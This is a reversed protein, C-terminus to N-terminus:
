CDALPSPSASHMRTGRIPPATAVSRTSGDCGTASRTPTCSCRGPLPRSRPGQDFFTVLTELLSGGAAALPDYLSRALERRAHGDGALAREPLLDHSTVPRPAEPWAAAARFGALAERTSSSADMLHEVPPGVVVPGPGFSAVFTGVVEAARDPSTLANGGLIVIMRDGQVAGLMDVGAIASAHRVAELAQAPEL